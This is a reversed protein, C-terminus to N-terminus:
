LKPSLKNDKTDKLIKQLAAIRKRLYEVGLDNFKTGSKTAWAVVKDRSWGLEYCGIAIVRKRLKDREDNPPQWKAGRAEGKPKATSKPDPLARLTDIAAAYEGPTLEKSSSTRGKTIGYIINDKQSLVGKSNLLAHLLRNQETTM